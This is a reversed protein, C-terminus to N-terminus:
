NSSSSCGSATPARFVIVLTVRPSRAAASKSFARITVGSWPCSVVNIHDAKRLFEAPRQYPRCSRGLRSRGERSIPSSADATVSRTTPPGRIATNWVTVCPTTSYYLVAVKRATTAKGVRASLRRYFAGLTTDTRAVAVAALRLLAAARSGLRRTPSLLVKGGSIKNSPTLCLWSTFHKANPWASLNTGCEGVLKLAM